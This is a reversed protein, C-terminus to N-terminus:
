EEVVMSREGAERTEGPCPRSLIQEHDDGGRCHCDYGNDHRDQCDNEQEGVELATTSAPQLAEQEHEPGLAPRAARPRTAWSSPM